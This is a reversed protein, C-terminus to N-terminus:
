WFRLIVGFCPFCKVIRDELVVITNLLVPVQYDPIMLYRM